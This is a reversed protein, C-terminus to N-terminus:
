RITACTMSFACPSDASAASLTFAILDGRMEVAAPQGDLTLRVDEPRPAQRFRLLIHQPAAGTYRGQLEGTRMRYSLMRGRWDLRQGFGKEWYEAPAVPALVVSGDLAFEVGFLFRQMVRILNAPYECYGEPGAPSCGGKGDPHYRERWSYGHKRGAEAVARLSAVLGDADRMIHRAWCELYWVRGMAALDHRDPYAFEWAEYTEPRTAIGTPMGGYYFRLEDKLQPWLIDRQEPTAVNTALAAWDVDTLGHTAVVGREPHIYEAFQRGLWFRARFHGAIGEAIARYREAADKDGLADDLAAVRRFADIAHCQAVGDFEVRTPREIYYGAGCVLGDATVMSALHNAARHISDRQAALWSHDQTFRFLVDANQIFTPAALARLPDGPVWHRYLGGNADLTSKAGEDGIEQCALGPLIALPLQGDPRQFRCVYDWNARVVDTQGLWLLADAMQHGDLSPFTNGLGFGQRDACVSWYGFFISSDVAALVNKVAAREYTEVLLPDPLEPVRVPQGAHGPQPALHGFLSM